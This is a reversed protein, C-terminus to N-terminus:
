RAKKTREDGNAITLGMKWFWKLYCQKAPDFKLPKILGSASAKSQARLLTREENQVLEYNTKGKFTKSDGGKLVKEVSVPLRSKRTPLM